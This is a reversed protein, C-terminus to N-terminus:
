TVMIIEIDSGGDLNGIAGSTHVIEDGSYTWLLDGTIGDLLHGMSDIDGVFVEDTIGDGDADGVVPNWCFTATGGNYEWKVMVTASDILGTGTQHATHYPNLGYMPWDQSHVGSVTIAVLVLCLLIHKM